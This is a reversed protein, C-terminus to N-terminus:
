KPQLKGNKGLLISKQPNLVKVPQSEHVEVGIYGFELGRIVQLLQNEALSIETKILEPM